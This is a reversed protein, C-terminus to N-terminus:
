KLTKAFMEQLKEAQKKAEPGTLEETDGTSFNVAKIKFGEADKEVKYLFVQEPDLDAQAKAEKSLYNMSSFAKLENFAKRKSNSGKEEKNLVMRDLEGDMNEDLLLRSGDGTEKLIWKEKGTADYGVIIQDGNSLTLKKVEINNWRGKQGHEVMQLVIKKENDKAIQNFNEIKADKTQTFAPLSSLIVFAGIKLLQKPKEFNM